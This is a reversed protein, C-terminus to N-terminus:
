KLSINIKKLSVYIVESINRPNYKIIVEDGEEPSDILNDIESLFILTSEKELYKVEFSTISTYGSISTNRIIYISQTFNIKTIIGTTEVTCRKKKKSYDFYKWFMSVSILFLLGILSLLDFSYKSIRYEGYGILVSLIFFLIGGILYRNKPKILAFLLLISILLFPVSFFGIIEIITQFEKLVDNQISFLFVGFGFSSLSFLIFTNIFRKNM